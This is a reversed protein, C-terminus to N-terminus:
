APRSSASIIAKVSRRVGSSISRSASASAATPTSTAAHLQDVLPRLGPTAARRHGVRSQLRARGDGLVQLAGLRRPQRLQGLRLQYPVEGLEARAVEADVGAEVREARARHLVVRADVLPQDAQGPEAVQVGILVVLIRLPRQLQHPPQLLDQRLHDPQLCHRQLRGRSRLTLQGSQRQDARVELVAALVLLAALDDDGVRSVAGIRGADGHGAVRHALHVNVLSAVDVDVVQALLHARLRGPQHQGVWRRQPQELLPDLLHRRDEVVGAGQEVVVAGVQVRDAADRAGAVHAEVHQVEVQM